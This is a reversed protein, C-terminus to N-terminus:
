KDKGKFIIGMSKYYDIIDQASKILIGGKRIIENTGTGYQNYISHPLCFVPKKQKLAYRTTITTGSRYKAEIM